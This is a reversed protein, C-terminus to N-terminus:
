KWHQTSDEPERPFAEQKGIVVTQGTLRLPQLWQRNEIFESNPGLLKRQNNAKLDKHCEKLGQSMDKVCQSRVILWTKSHASKETGGRPWTPVDIKPSSLSSEEEVQWTSCTYETTMVRGVHLLVFMQIKLCERLNFVREEKSRLYSLSVCMDWRSRTAKRWREPRSPKRGGGTIGHVLGTSSTTSQSESMKREGSLRAQM